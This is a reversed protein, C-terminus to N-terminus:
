YILLRRSTLIFNAKWGLDRNKRGGKRRGGKISPLPPQGAAPLSGEFGGRVYRNMNSAIVRSLNFLLSHSQSPSPAHCPWCVYENSAHRQRERNSCVRSAHNHRCASANMLIKLWYEDHCCVGCRVTDDIKQIHARNTTTKHWGSIFPCGTM